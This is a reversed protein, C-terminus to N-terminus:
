RPNPEPRGHRIFGVSRQRFKANLEVKAGELQDLNIEWKLREQDIRIGITGGDRAFNPLESVLLVPRNAFAERLATMGGEPLATVLIVHCDLLDRSLGAVTIDVVGEKFWGERAENVANRLSKGLTDKGLIGLKLRRFRTPSVDDPWVGYYACNLLLFAVADSRSLTPRPEAAFGRTAGVLSLLVLGGFQRRSVGPRGAVGSRAMFSSPTM